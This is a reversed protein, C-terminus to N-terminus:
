KGGYLIDQSFPVFRELALLSQKLDRENFLELTVVRAVTANGMLRQLLFSLLDSDMAGIDCHDKGDIVGHMHVIRVSDGYRRLMEKVCFGHKLLHGIDLCVGFGMRSAIPEILDFPYDLTELCVKKAPIGTQVLEHASREVNAIWRDSDSVSNDGEKRCHIIYGFPNLTEMLNFIRGCQRVSQRRVAENGHGLRVDLPCHVTYSIDHMQSMARLYAVAAPTPLPSRDDSEFLVLEIDDVLGALFNVNSIIDAVLTYSTAGLRFPFKRKLNM